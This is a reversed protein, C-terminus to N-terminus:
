AVDHSIEKVQPNIVYKISPRGGTIERQEALWGLEVLVDIGKQADERTPLGAWHRRYVDRATFSGTLDDTLMRDALARAAM